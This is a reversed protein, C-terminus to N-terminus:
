GNLWCWAYELLCELLVNSFSLCAQCATLLDTLRFVVQVRRSYWVVHSNFLHVSIKPVWFEQWPWNWLKFKSIRNLNQFERPLLSILYLCSCQHKRSNLLLAIDVSIWWFSSSANLSLLSSLSFFKSQKIMWFSNRGTGFWPSISCALFFHRIFVGVLQCLESEPASWPHHRSLPYNFLAM